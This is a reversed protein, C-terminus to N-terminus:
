PMFEVLLLGKKDCIMQDVEIIWQEHNHKNGSWPGDYLIAGSFKIKISNM